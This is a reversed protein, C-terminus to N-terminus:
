GPYVPARGNDPSHCPRNISSPQNCGLGGKSAAARRVSDRYFRQQRSSSVGQKRCISLIKHSSCTAAALATQWMSAQSKAQRGHLNGPRMTSANLHMPQICRLVCSLACAYLSSLSGGRRIGAVVGVAVAGLRQTIYNSLVAACDRPRAPPVCKDAQRRRLTILLQPQGHLLLAVQM